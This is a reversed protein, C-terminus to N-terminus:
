IRSDLNKIYFQLTQACEIKCYVFYSNLFPTQLIHIYSNRRKLISDKNQIVEEKLPQALNEFTRASVKFSPFERTIDCIEPFVHSKNLTERLRFALSSPSLPLLLFSFLTTTIERTDNIKRM